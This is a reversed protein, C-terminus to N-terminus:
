EKEKKLGWGPVFDLPPPLGEPHNAIVCHFNFITPIDENIGIQWRGLELLGGLIYYPRIWVAQGKETPKAWQHVKASAQDTIQSRLRLVESTLEQNSIIFVTLGDTQSLIHKSMLENDAMADIALQRYQPGHNRDYDRYNVAPVKKGFVQQGVLGRRQELDHLRSVLPKESM